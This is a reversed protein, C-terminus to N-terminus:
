GEDKTGGERRTLESAPTLVAETPLRDAAEAGATHRDTGHFAHPDLESPLGSNGTTMERGLQSASAVRDPRGEPSVDSGSLQDRPQPEGGENGRIATGENPQHFAQNDSARQDSM